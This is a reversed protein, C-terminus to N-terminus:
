TADKSHMLHNLISGSVLHGSLLFGLLPFCIGFNNVSSPIHVSSSSHLRIPSFNIKALKSRIMFTTHTLVMGFCAILM